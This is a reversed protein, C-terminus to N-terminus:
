IRLGPLNRLEMITVRRVTDVRFSRWGNKDLCWVPIVDPSSLGGTGKIPPVIDSRLTCIMNRQAGNSVKTFEVVCINQRLMQEVEGKIIM